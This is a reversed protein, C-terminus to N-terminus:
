RALRNRGPSQWVLHAGRSQRCVAAEAGQAQARHEHPVAGLVASLLCYTTACVAVLPRLVLRGPWCSAGRPAQRRGVQDYLSAWDACYVDTCALSSYSSCSSLSRCASCLQCCVEYAKKFSQGLVNDGAAEGTQASSSARCVAPVGSRTLVSRMALMIAPHVISAAKVSPGRPQFATSCLVCCLM